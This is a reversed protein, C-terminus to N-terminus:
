RRCTRRASSGRCRRGWGARPSSRRSGPPPPPAPPRPSGTRRRAPCCGAPSSGGRRPPVRWTTVTVTLALKSRAWRPPIDHAHGVRRSHAVRGGLLGEDLVVGLEASLQGRLTRHHDPTLHVALDLSRREVHAA